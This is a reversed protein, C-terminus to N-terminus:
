PTFLYSVLVFFPVKKTIYFKGRFSRSIQMFVHILSEFIVEWKYLGPVWFVVMREPHKTHFLWKTWPIQSSYYLNIWGVVGGMPGSCGLHTGLGSPFGTSSWSANTTSRVRLLNFCSKPPVSFDIKKRLPFPPTIKSSM